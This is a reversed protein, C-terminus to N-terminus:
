STHTLYGFLERVLEDPLEQFLPIIKPIRVFSELIDCPFQSSHDQIYKIAVKDHNYRGLRLDLYICYIKCYNM